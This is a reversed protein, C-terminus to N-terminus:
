IPLNDSSVKYLFPRNILCAAKFVYGGLDARRKWIFEDEVFRFKGAPDFRALTHQTLRSASEGIRYWEEIRRDKFLYLMSRLNLRSLALEELSALVAEEGEDVFVFWNNLEFDVPTLGGMVALFESAMPFVLLEPTEEHDDGDDYGKSSQHIERHEEVTRVLWDLDQYDYSLEGIPLANKMSMFRYNALPGYSFNDM